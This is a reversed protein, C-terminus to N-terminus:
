RHGNRRRGLRHRHDARARGPDQLVQGADGASAAPDEHLRAHNLALYTIPTERIAYTAFPTNRIAYQSHRTAIEVRRPRTWARGTDRSAMRWVGYAMRWVGYAMRWVGYAM